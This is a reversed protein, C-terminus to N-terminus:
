ALYKTLISYQDLAESINKEVHVDFERSLMASKAQNVDFIGVKADLKNLALVASKGVRGAGIVLVRRHQLGGVLSDLSAVYGKGTADTNDWVQHSSFNIAIFRNDDAIFIIKAKREVAEALGSADSSDTIFSDFGVHNVISQVAQVFGEIVGKGSTVPIVGVLSSDIVRHVDEENVGAARYATQRLSSGTRIFLEKDFVAIDKGIGSILEGSLRTM